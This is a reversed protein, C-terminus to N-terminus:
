VEYDGFTKRFTNMTWAGVGSEITDFWAKKTAVRDYDSGWIKLMIAVFVKPANGIKNAVEAAFFGDLAYGKTNVPPAALLLLVHPANRSIDLIYKNLLPKMDEDPMIKQYTRTTHTRSIKTATRMIPPIEESTYTAPLFEVRERMDFDDRHRNPREPKEDKVNFTGPVGTIRSPDKVSRDVYEPFLNYLYCILNVEDEPSAGQDVPIIFRYGNGTFEERIGYYKEWIVSRIVDLPITDIEENTAPSKKFAPDKVPDIDLYLNKIQLVDTDRGKGIVGVRYSNINIYLQENGDNVKLFAEAKSIHEPTSVKVFKQRGNKFYMVNHQETNDLPNGLYRIFAELNYNSMKIGGYVAGVVEQYYRPQYIPHWGFIEM